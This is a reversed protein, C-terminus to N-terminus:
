FGIRFGDTASPSDPTYQFGSEFALMEKPGAYTVYGM